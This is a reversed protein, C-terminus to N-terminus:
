PHAIQATQDASQPPPGLYARSLLSSRSWPIQQGQTQQIVALRLARMIDEIPRSPGALQRLLAATFPSTAGAGDYAIQGPQAAYGIFLGAPAATPPAAAINASSALPNERCADLLIIKQRPKDSVARIVVRLPLSTTNMRDQRMQTDRLFLSSEGGLSAGHGSFYILTQTADASELRLRALAHLLQQRDPDIVLRTHYGLGNLRMAIQRADSAANALDPGHDYHGVGIVLATRSPGASLPAHWPGLMLFLAFILQRM